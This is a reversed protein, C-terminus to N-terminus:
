MLRYTTKYSIPVEFAGNLIENLLPLIFTYTAKVEVVIKESDYNIVNVKDKCFILYSTFEEATRRIEADKEELTLERRRLIEKGFEASQASAYVVIIRDYILMGFSLVVFILMLVLPLVILYEVLSQGKNNLKKM